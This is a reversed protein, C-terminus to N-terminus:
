GDNGDRRTPNVDGGSREEPRPGRLAREAEGLKGLAAEVETSLRRLETLAEEPDREMGETAAVFSEWFGGSVAQRLLGEAKRRSWRNPMGEESHRLRHLVAMEREALLMVRPALASLLAEAERRAAVFGVGKEPGRPERYREGRLFYGLLGVVAATGAAFIAVAEGSVNRGIEPDPADLPRPCALRGEPRHSAVILGDDCSGRRFRDETLHHEERASFGPTEAFSGTGEFPDALVPMQAETAYPTREPKAHLVRTTSIGRGAEDVGVGVRVTRGPSREAKDFAWVVRRAEDPGLLCTPELRPRPAASTEAAAPTRPETWLAALLVVSALLAAAAPITRM